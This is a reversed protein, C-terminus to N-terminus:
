RSTSGGSPRSASRAQGRAPRPAEAVLLKSIGRIPIWVWDPRNNLEYALEYFVKETEFLSILQRILDPAKPLFSGMSGDSALYGRLFANRADREWRGSLIEREHAPLSAGAETALTAAAYGFSRLMGAVDRLASHPKRREALPRAPEGEFDIVYFTGDAGRLLQGLHYDGHHRIRGGADRGANRVIEDLYELFHSRRRLLVEAEAVREQPLTRRQVASTLLDLGQNVSQKASAGWATVDRETAPQMVFAPKDTIAALTDHLSRTVRGITEADQAFANVPDAGHKGSFYSKGTELAYKWADASGAVLQQLMGADIAGDRTRFRIRGLLRPVNAFGAETLASGIEPDPNEGAELRRFFKLIARDGFIMSTNSQEASGLKPEIGGVGAPGASVREFIWESEDGPFAAGQEFAEGLGRRFQPDETADILMGRASGADIPVIVSKLEEKSPSAGAGIGLPLQYELRQEGSKLTMRAIASGHEGWPLPVIDILRVDTATGTKAGFWRRGSIFRALVESPISKLASPSLAARLSEARLVFSTDSM